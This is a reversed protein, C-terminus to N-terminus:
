NQSVHPLDKRKALQRLSLLMEACQVAAPTQRHRHAQSMESLLAPNALLNTLLEGSQALEGEVVIRAAGRGALSAANAMQHDHTANPLPVLIAPLAAAEIEAITSAGARSIVLLTQALCAPMDEVFSVVQAPLGAAQYAAGVAEQHAAGCQHLITYGALSPLGALVNPLTRNLAASGQSGGLVLIQRRQPSWAPLLHFARRIPNGTVICRCKLHQQPEPMGLCAVRAWRSLLRNAMGPVANQEQLMFPVRWCIAAAVLPLSAYGGVGVVARPRQRLILAFALFLSAPIRYLLALRQFLSKGLFGRMPLTLLPLGREGLIRGEMGYRTGVYFIRADPCLEGLAEGIALAPFIHGGTGGGAIFFVPGKM